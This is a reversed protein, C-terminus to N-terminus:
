SESLLSERIINTRSLKFHSRTSKSVVLHSLPKIRLAFNKSFIGSARGYKAATLRKRRLYSLARDPLFIVSFIANLFKIKNLNSAFDKRKVPDLSGLNKFQATVQGNKGFFETKINQLDKKTKVTNIKANFVSSIKDLNSM